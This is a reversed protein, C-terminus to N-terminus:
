FYFLSKLAGLFNALQRQKDEIQKLGPIRKDVGPKNNEIKQLKELKIATEALTLRGKKKGHFSFIIIYM